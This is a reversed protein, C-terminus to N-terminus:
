IILSLSRLFFLTIIEEFRSITVAHFIGDLVCPILEYLYFKDKFIKWEEDSIKKKKIYFMDKNRCKSFSKALDKRNTYAYLSIEVEDTVYQVTDPNVLYPFQNKLTDDM